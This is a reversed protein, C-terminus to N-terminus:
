GNSVRRDLHTSVLVDALINWFGLERLAESCRGAVYRMEGDTLDCRQGVELGLAFDVDSHTLSLVPFIKPPQKTM